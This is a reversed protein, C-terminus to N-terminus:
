ESFDLITISPQDDDDGNVMVRGLAMILAVIGDIRGATNDKIPRISENSGHMIAVNSAMWRLIPNGGHRIKKDVLLSELFKSPESFHAYGQAIPIAIAGDNGLQTALQTANWPDYPLERVEYQLAFARVDERIVDYDILNGETAKLLGAEIWLRYPVRDRKEAEVVNNGPIWFQCLVDYYGGPQPFVAIAATIDQGTSLDLGLYCVDGRSVQPPASCADWKEMDLWREAQETWICFNLRKVINQKSPMDVAEAVQERLYKETISVGLNPNAKIWVAPDRWDDGEDLGCIYAFWSDNDILGTLLRESYEHHQWCVSNRDYGSNTIEFILAQRRGKTGARMKDVVTANPHEHVEDILAMHVRKGDLARHESSVPRFYSLTRQFALNNVNQDIQPSLYPSSKVMHEADRFLIKAQDRTTAASYIEAGHEGDFILGYLGIGAAMPSKGNGKGVEVYATRFRRYGDPGMWGFISGIIFKQWPQLIFPRGDHEGETLVLFEEFFRFVHDAAKENFTLGRAAGTALDRIHRECALRVLRGAPVRGGIVAEAYETVAHTTAISM